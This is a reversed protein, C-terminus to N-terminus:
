DVRVSPNSPHFRPPGLAEGHRYKGAGDATTSRRKLHGRGRGRATGPPASHPRRYTYSHWVFGCVRMIKNKAARVLPFMIRTQATLLGATFGCCVRLGTRRTERPNTFGCSSRFGCCVRLSNAWTLPRILPDQRTQPNRELDLACLFVAPVVRSAPGGARVGVPPSTMEFLSRGRRLAGSDCHRPHRGARGAVGVLLDAGAM